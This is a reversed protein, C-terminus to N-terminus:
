ANKRRILKISDEKNGSYMVTHNFEIAGSINKVSDRNRGLDNLLYYMNKKVM